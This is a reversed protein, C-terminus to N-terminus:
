SFVVNWSGKGTLSVKKHYVSCLKKELDPLKHLLAKLLVLSPLESVCLETVAEQRQRIKRRLCHLCYVVHVATLQIIVVVIFMFLLLCLQVM